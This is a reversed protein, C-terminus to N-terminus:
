RRRAASFRADSRGRGRTQPRRALAARDATATDDQRRQDCRHLGSRPPASRPGPKEFAHRPLLPLMNTGLRQLEETAKERTDFNEDALTAILKAGNLRAADSLTRKRFESLAATGDNAEWWMKWADRQKERAAADTGSIPKPGREGALAALAEEVERAMPAPLETLLSIMTAIAEGDNAQMLVLGAQLRVIPVPDHLLKRLIARPEASGTQGLVEIATARRLPLEDGLAKVLVPDPTNNRYAITMLAM